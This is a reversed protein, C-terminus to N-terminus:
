RALGPTTLPPNPESSEVALGTIREPVFLLLFPERTFAIAVGRFRVTTGKEPESKLKWDVGDILLAADATDEGQGEGQMSLLVKRGGSDAPTVSVVTGELYSVVYEPPLVADKYSQIFLTEAEPGSLPGKVSDRWFGLPSQKWGERTRAGTPGTEGKRLPFFFDESSRVEIFQALKQYEEEGLRSALDDMQELLFLNLDLNAWNVLDLEASYTVEFDGAVQLRRSLISRGLAGEVRDAESRYARVTALVAEASMASFGVDERLRVLPDIPQGNMMRSRLADAQQLFAKQTAMSQSWALPGLALLLALGRTM